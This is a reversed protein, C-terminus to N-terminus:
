DKAYWRWWPTIWASTSCQISNIVFRVFHLFSVVAVAVVVIFFFFLWLLLLLVYSTFQFYLKLHTTACLKWCVRISFFHFAVTSCYILVDLLLTSSEIFTIKKHRESQNRDCVFCFTLPLLIDKTRLKTEAM